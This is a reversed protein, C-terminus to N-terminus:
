PQPSILPIATLLACNRETYNHHSARCCERAVCSSVFQPLQGASRTSSHLPAPPGPTAWPTPLLTPAEIVPVAVHLLHRM